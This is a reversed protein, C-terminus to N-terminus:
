DSETKTTKGRLQFKYQFRDESEFCIIVKSIKFIGDYFIVNRLFYQKCRQLNRIRLM